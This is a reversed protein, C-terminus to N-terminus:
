ADDLLRYGSKRVSEIRLQLDKIIKRIRSIENQLNANIVIADDWGATLLESTRHVYGKALCLAVFVRWSHEFNRFVAQKDGRFATRSAEDLKISLYGVDM